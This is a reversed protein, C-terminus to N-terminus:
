LGIKFNNKLHNIVVFIVIMIIFPVYFNIDFIIDLISIKYNKVLINLSMGLANLAYIMPIEAFAIVILFRKLRINELGFFISHFFYPLIYRSILISYNNIALKKFNIKKQFFKDFNINFTEKINRSFVFLLASGIIIFTISILFGILKFFFGNLIIILTVPLPTLFYLFSLTIYISIYSFSLNQNNIFFDFIENKFYFAFISLFLIFSISIILFNKKNM